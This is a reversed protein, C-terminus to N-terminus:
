RSANKCIESSRKYAFEEQFGNLILVINQDPKKVVQTKGPKLMRDFLIRKEGSVWFSYGEKNNDIYLWKSGNSAKVKTLIGNIEAQEAQMANQCFRASTHPALLKLGGIFVLISIVPLINEKKM